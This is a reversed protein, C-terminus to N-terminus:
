RPHYRNRRRGFYKRNNFFTSIDIAFNEIGEEIDDDLIFIRIELTEDPSGAFELQGVTELYDEDATANNAATRYQVSFAEGFDGTNTVSVIVEQENETVIADAITIGLGSNDPTNDIDSITVERTIDGVM